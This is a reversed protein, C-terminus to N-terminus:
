HAFLSFDLKQPKLEFQEVGSGLVDNPTGPSFPSKLSSFDQVVKNPTIPTSALQGVTGAMGNVNRYELYKTMERCVDQSVVCQTTSLTLIGHEILSVLLKSVAVVSRGNRGDCRVLRTFYTSLAGVARVYDDSDLMKESYMRDVFLREIEACHQKSMKDEIQCLGIFMKMCQTLFLDRHVTYRSLFAFVEAEDRSEKYRELLEVIMMEIQFHSPTTEQSKIPREDMPNVAEKPEHDGDLKCESNEDSVVDSKTEGSDATSMKPSEEIPIPQLDPIRDTDM